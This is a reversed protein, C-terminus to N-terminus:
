AVIYKRQFVDSSIFVNKNSFTSLRLYLTKFFVRLNPNAYIMCNHLQTTLKKMICKDVSKQLFNGQKIEFM